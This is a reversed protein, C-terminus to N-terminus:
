AANPTAEPESLSKLQRQQRESQLEVAEFRAQLDTSLSSCKQDLVLDHGETQNVRFLCRKEL